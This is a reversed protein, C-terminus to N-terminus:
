QPHHSLLRDLKAAYLAHDDHTTSNRIALKLENRASAEDGLRLYAVGLWFHFEGNYDARAVEKAFMERAEPYDARRLAAMGRRFFAYPPNPEIRALQRRLGDAESSRGIRDLVVVLNSLVQPDGPQRDLAIRLVQEAPQLDGHRLYIVGLTNYASAFAPAKMIAARAWWYADDIRGKALAEAARNNMFMAVITEESVPKTFQGVVDEPPLFDITLLRNEDYGRFGAIWRPGLTLNVHGSSFALDDSRSWTEETAVSQYTVQLGLEKAFAATMIVLSLCNGRRADFAQAANRTMEADYDLELQDHRYLADILGRQLGNSRLQQAIDVQLYRKMADSVAFVEESGIKDAPAAFREDHLFLSPATVPTTACSAVLLALALCFLTATIRKV